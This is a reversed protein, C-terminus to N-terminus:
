GHCKSKAPSASLPLRANADCQQWRRLDGYINLQEPVLGNRSCSIFVDRM